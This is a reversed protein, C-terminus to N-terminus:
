GPVKKHRRLLMVVGPALVFLFLPRPRGASGAASCGSSSRTSPRPEEPHAAELEAVVEACNVETTVLNLLSMRDGTAESFLGVLREVEAQWHKCQAETWDGETTLFYFVVNMQSPESSAEPLREGEVEIVDLITFTTPVARLDVPECRQPPSGPHVSGGRCDAPLEAGEEPVLLEFPTVEDPLLLGMLYLDLESYGPDAGDTATFFEPGDGRWANGELPSVRFDNSTDLFYSWHEQDRGLLVTPDSGAVHVRAAWRHGIEHLFARGLEDPYFEWYPVDNLFAVGELAANPSDDFLEEEYFHRYGIGRVDNSVAAYFLDACPPVELSLVVGFEPDLGAGENALLVRDRLTRKALDRPLCGDVGTAGDLVLFNPGTRVEVQSFASSSTCFLAASLSLSFLSRLFVM